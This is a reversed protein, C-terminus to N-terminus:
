NESKCANLLHFLFVSFFLTYKQFYIKIIKMCYFMLIDVKLCSGNLFYYIYLRFTFVIYM